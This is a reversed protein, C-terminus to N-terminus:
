VPFPRRFEPVDKLGLRELDATAPTQRADVASGVRGAATIVAFVEALNGFASRLNLTPLPRGMAVSLTRAM